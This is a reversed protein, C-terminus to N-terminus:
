YLSPRPRGAIGIGPKPGRPRCRGGSGGGISTGRATPFDEDWESGTSAGTNAPIITVTKGPPLERDSTAETAAAFRMTPASDLVSTSVAALNVPVPKTQVPRSRRTARKSPNTTRPPIRTQRLEVPTAIVTEQPATALTLDRKTVSATTQERGESGCGAVAAVAAALPLLFVIRM